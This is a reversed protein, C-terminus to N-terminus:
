KYSNIILNIDRVFGNNSTDMLTPSYGYICKTSQINCFFIAPTSEIGFRSFEEKINKIGIVPFDIKYLNKIENLKHENDIDIIGALVCLNEDISNYFNNWISIENTTCVGCGNISFYFIILFEPETKNFIENFKEVFENESYLPMYQGEIEELRNSRNTQVDNNSKIKKKLSLNKKVILIESFITIILLALLLINVDIKKNFKIM